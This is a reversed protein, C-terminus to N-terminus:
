GKHATSTRGTARSLQRVPCLNAEPLKIAGRIWQLEGPPSLHQDSSGHLPHYCILKSSLSGSARHPLLRNFGRALVIRHTEGLMLLDPLLAVWYSFAMGSLGKGPYFQGKDWGFLLTHSTKWLGLIIRVTAPPLDVKMTILPRAIIHINTGISITVTFVM